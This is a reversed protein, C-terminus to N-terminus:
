KNWWNEDYLEWFGKEKNVDDLDIYKLENRNNQELIELDSKKNPEVTLADMRARLEDINAQMECIQQFQAQLTEIQNVILNIDPQNYKMNYISNEVSSLRSTLLSVDHQLNEISSEAQGFM